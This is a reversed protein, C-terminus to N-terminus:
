QKVGIAEDNLVFHKKRLVKWVVIAALASLVISMFMSTILEIASFQGADIQSHCLFSVLVWAIAEQACTLFIPLGALLPFNYRAGTKVVLVELILFSVPYAAMWYFIGMVHGWMTRNVTDPVYPYAFSIMSVIVIMIAALIGMTPNIVVNRSSLLFVMCLVAILAVTSTIPLVNIVGFIVMIASIVLSAVLGIKGDM